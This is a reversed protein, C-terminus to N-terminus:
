TAAYTKSDNTSAFTLTAITAFVYRNGSASVSGGSATGWIATNGSDLGGFLDGAPTASYILWRDSAVLAGSRRTSSPAPRPSRCMPGSISVGSVITLDAPPRLTTAGTTTVGAM